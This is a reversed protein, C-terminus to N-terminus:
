CPGLTDTKIQIGKPIRIALLIQIEAIKAYAISCLNLLIEKNQVRNSWLTTSRFLMIDTLFYFIKIPSDGKNDYGLTDHSYTVLPFLYNAIVLFPPLDADSL